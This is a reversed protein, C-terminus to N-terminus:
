GLWAAAWPLGLLGFAPGVVPVMRGRRKKTRGSKMRDSVTSSGVYGFDGGIDLTPEKEIRAADSYRSRTHIMFLFNGVMIKQKRDHAETVAMEM